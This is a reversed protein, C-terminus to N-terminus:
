INKKYNTIIGNPLISRELSAAQNLQDKSITSNRFDSDIFIANSIDTYSFDVNQFICKECRINQWNEERLNADTFNVKIFVSHRISIGFLRASLFTSDEITTYDFTANVISAYNFQCRIFHTHTASAERMDAGYFDVNEGFTSGDLNAEMLEVFALSSREIISNSLDVRDMIAHTFVCLICTFSHLDANKMTASDFIVKDYVTGFFSTNTLDAEKFYISPDNAESCNINDTICYNTANSFDANNLIARNFRAGVLNIGHFDAQTMIAGEMSIHTLLTQGIPGDILCLNALNVSELSVPIQDNISYYTILKADYLLRILFNRRDRDLQNLASLTAFHTVLSISESENLQPGYNEILKSITKQYERIITDKQQNDAIELDQARNRVAIALDRNNELVTYIAIVVPISFSIFLQIWQFCSHKNKEDNKM